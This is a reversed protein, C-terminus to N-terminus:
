VQSSHVSNREDECELCGVVVIYVRSMPQAKIVFLLRGERSSLDSRMSVIITCYNTVSKPVGPSTEGKERNPRRLTAQQWRRAAGSGGNVM